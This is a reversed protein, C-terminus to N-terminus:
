PLVHNFDLVLIERSEYCLAVYKGGSQVDFPHTYRGGMKFIVQGTVTDKIRSWGIEWQKTDNLFLSPLGPSVVPPTDTVGIDWGHIGDWPSYVWARSGDVILSKVSLSAHCVEGVVAGTHISWTYISSKTMCLVKSGDGSIRIDIVYQLTGGVIHLLKEKEVDYIHIKNDAFWIFILKNNILWVDSQNVDKAPTQFSAKCIGTSLDWIRVVGDSDSSITVGHEAQLTISRTQASALSTTKTHTSVQNTSPVTIQWFKVSRDNSSSILSSPSSFVVSWITQTHGVFAEILQPNSGTIDWIHITDGPTVAVLRGDPSFCCCRMHTNCVLPFEAVIEGSDSNWVVVTGPNNDYSAFQTGGPSFTTYSGNYTHNIRHGGIEWQQISRHSAFILHQPDTPSFSVYLACDKQEMIHHCEGTQIDWLYLTADSSVSAITTHDASISVSFVVGTHGCFTKIVRGTQLDWQKITGDDSGSIFLAGDSSVAISNVYTTHESLTAVQSGTTGDLITIDGSVLGVAIANKWFISCRPETHTVVTRFCAGWKAPLGQVM